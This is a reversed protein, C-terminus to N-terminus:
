CKRLDANVMVIDTGNRFTRTVMQCTYLRRDGVLLSAIKPPRSSSSSSSSSSSKSSSSSSSNKGIKGIIEYLFLSCVIM